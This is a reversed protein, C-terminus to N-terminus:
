TQLRNVLEIFQPDADPGYASVVIGLTATDITEVGLVIAEDAPDTDGEFRFTRRVVVDGATHQDLSFDSDYGEAVLLRVAETVTEPVEAM